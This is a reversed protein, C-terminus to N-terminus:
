IWGLRWLSLPVMTRQSRAGVREAANFRKNGKLDQLQPTGTDSHYLGTM